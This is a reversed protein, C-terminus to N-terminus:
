GGKPCPWQPCKALRVVKFIAYMLDASGPEETPSSDDGSSPSASVKVAKAAGRGDTYSLVLEKVEEREALSLAVRPSAEFEDIFGDVEDGASDKDRDFLAQAWAESFCMRGIMAQLLTKQVTTLEARTAM